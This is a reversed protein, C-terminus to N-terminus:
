CAAIAKGTGIRFLPHFIAAAYDVLRLPRGPSCGPAGAPVRDVREIGVAISRAGPM